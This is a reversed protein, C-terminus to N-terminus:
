RGKRTPAQPSAEHVSRDVAMKLKTNGSDRCIERPCHFQNFWLIVRHTSLFDLSCDCTIGMKQTLNTRCICCGCPDSVELVYGGECVGESGFYAKNMQKAPSSLYVSALGTFVFM